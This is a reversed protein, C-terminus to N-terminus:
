ATDRADNRHAFRTGGDACSREIITPRKISKWSNQWKASVAVSTGTTLDTLASKSV